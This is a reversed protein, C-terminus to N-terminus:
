VRDYVMASGVGTISGDFAVSPAGGVVREGNESISVASGFGGDQYLGPISSGERTWVELDPEHKWVQISGTNGIHNVNRPSGIALVSGDASLSVSAGFSDRSHEGVIPSPLQIWAGNIERYIYVSGPGFATGRVGVALVKGNSSLAVATGFRGLADEGRLTDGVQTWVAGSWEYIRVLGREGDASPGGAAVRTTNSSSLSVAWGMFENTEEGLIPQGLLHWGQEDSRYIHVSGLRATTPSSALPSGIALLDGTSTMDVDFGFWEEQTLIPSKLLDREEYGSGGDQFIQVTGYTDFRPYGVALLAGNQAMALSSQAVPNLGPGRLSAVTKWESEVLEFIKVEGVNLESSDSDVGPAAVACLSGSLTVSSGFHAQPVDPPGFLTDGTLRWGQITTGTGSGSAVSADFIGAFSLSVLIISLVSFIFVLLRISRLRRQIKPDVDAEEESVAAGEVVVEQHLEAAIPSIEVESENELVSPHLSPTDENASEYAAAEEDTGIGAVAYAGPLLIPPHSSHAELGDEQAQSSDDEFIGDANSPAFSPGEEIKAQQRTCPLLTSQSPVFTQETGEKLRGAQNEFRREIKSVTIATDTSPAFSPGTSKNSKAVQSGRIVAIAGPQPLQRCKGNGTHRTHDSDGSSLSTAKGSSPLNRFIPGSLGEDFGGSKNSCATEKIITDSNRAKTAETNGPASMGTPQLRLGSIRRDESSENKEKFYISGVKPRTVGSRPRTMSMRENTLTKESTQSSGLEDSKNRAEKLAAEAIEAQTTGTTKTSNAALPQNLTLTKSIQVSLIGDSANNVKIEKSERGVARKDIPTTPQKSSQPQVTLTERDNTGELSSPSPFSSNAPRRFSSPERKRKIAAQYIEAQSMGSNKNNEMVDDTENKRKLATTALEARLKVLPTPPPIFTREQSRDSSDNKQAQPQTVSNMTKQLPVQNIKFQSKWLTHTQSQSSQRSSTSRQSRQSSDVTVGQKKAALAVAETIEVKSMGTIKTQGLFVKQSYGRQQLNNSTAANQIKKLETDAENKRRLAAAALQAQTKGLPKPPPFSRHGGASATSEQSCNSSDKLNQEQVQASRKVTKQDVARAVTTQSSVSPGKASSLLQKSRQQSSTRSFQAIFAKQNEKALSSKKQDRKPHKFNAGSPISEMLSLQKPRPPPRLSTTDETTSTDPSARSGGICHPNTYKRSSDYLDIKTIPLFPSMKSSHPFISVDTPSSHERSSGTTGLPARTRPTASTDNNTLTSFTDDERALSEEEISGVAQDSAISEPSISNSDAM